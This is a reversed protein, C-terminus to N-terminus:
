CVALMRTALVNACMVLANSAHKEDVTKVVNSTHSLMLQKLM